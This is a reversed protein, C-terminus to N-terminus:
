VSGGKRVWAGLDWRGSLRSSSRIIGVAVGMQGMELDGVGWNRVGKPFPVCLPRGGTRGNKM